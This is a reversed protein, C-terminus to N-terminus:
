VCGHGGRYSVCAGSLLYAGNGASEIKLESITASSGSQIEYTGELLDFPAHAFAQTFSFM